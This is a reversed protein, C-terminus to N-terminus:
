HAEMGDTSLHPVQPKTPCEFSVGLGIGCTMSSINYRGVPVDDSKAFASMPEREVGYKLRDVIEDDTGCRRALTLPTMEAAEGLRSTATRNEGHRLLIRIGSSALM